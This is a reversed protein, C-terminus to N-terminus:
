AGLSGLKSNALSPLLLLKPPNLHTQSEAQMSLTRLPTHSVTLGGPVTELVSGQLGPARSGQSISSLNHRSSCPQQSTFPLSLPATSTGQPLWVVSISHSCSLAAAPPSLLTPPARCLLPPSVLCWELPGGAWWPWQQLQCGLM